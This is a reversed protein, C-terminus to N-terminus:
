REVMPPPRRVAARRPGYISPLAPLAMEEVPPCNRKTGARRVLDLPQQQQEGPQPLLPLSMSGVIRKVLGETAQKAEGAKADDLLPPTRVRGRVKCVDWAKRARGGPVEDWPQRARIGAHDERAAVVAGKHAGREAGDKLHMCARVGLLPARLGSDDGLRLGSLAYALHESLLALSRLTVETLAAREMKSESKAQLMMETARAAEAQAGTSLCTPTRPCLKPM